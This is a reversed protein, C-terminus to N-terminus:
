FEKGNGVKPEEKKPLVSRPAKPSARASISSEM